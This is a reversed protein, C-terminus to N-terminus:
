LRENGHLDFQNNILDQFNFKNAKSDSSRHRLESNFHTLLSIVM